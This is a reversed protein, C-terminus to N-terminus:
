EASASKSAFCTLNDSVGCPWNSSYVSKLDWSGLGDYIAFIVYYKIKSIIPHSHALGM